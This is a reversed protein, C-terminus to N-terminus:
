LDYPYKQIARDIEAYFPVLPSTMTDSLVGKGQELAEVAAGVDIAHSMARRVRVDLLAPPKAHEPRMQVLTQRLNVPSWLVVGGNNQAWQQELNAGDTANFVFEAVYHAEGALLNALATNPDPVFRISIRDVKPRGLVHGDFAQGEIFAGPEWRTLRYPGLGVYESSWFPIGSFAVPDLERYSQELIHRPLAQFERDLPVAKSFLSKWQITVTRPDPATVDEVPAIRGTAGGLEPTSYVRWAFAFDEASLPQGDHWVLNPRLQYTTEMRGDPFVRWTDTNLQPVAEALYPQPAEREDMIDLTANFARDMTRLSGSFETIPRAAVSPPEERMIFVVTPQPAASGGPAGGGPASPGAAPACAVIGLALVLGVITPSGLRKM